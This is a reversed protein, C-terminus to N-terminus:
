TEIIGDRRRHSSAPFHQSITSVPNFCSTIMCLLAAVVGRRQSPILLLINSGSELMALLIGDEPINRRTAGTLLFTESSRLAEMMLTVHIPSNPVDATDLLRRMSRSKCSGCPTFDWFVANKM